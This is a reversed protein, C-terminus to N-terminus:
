TGTGRAAATGPRCTYAAIEAVVENGKIVGTAGADGTEGIVKDAANLNHDSVVRYTGNDCDIRVRGSSAVVHDPVLGAARAKDTYANFVIITFTDEPGRKISAPDVSLKRFDSEFLQALHAGKAPIDAANEDARAQPALLFSSVIVLFAAYRNMGM